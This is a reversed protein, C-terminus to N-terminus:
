QWGATSWAATSWSAGSWSAGSWSAGSWSAGSWSGGSWSGGSWSAGSWSAGTWSDGSWSAGNWAAGSWSATGWAGTSWSGNTWGNGTWTSGNWNGGDWTIGALSQPAWTVGNWTVGFIDREGNLETGNMTVHTGGRAKELSGTGVGYSYAQASTLPTAALQAANVDILGAGTFNKNTTAISAATRALLAKVQDPTLSPRHQLLLAVAGSVVAASQSTGSGRFFRTGVRGTPYQQDLYSGPDRLAIVHSGPAVFDAHRMTNGRSSFAPVVDDAPTLTGSPDAAGVAIIHPDIAPNAVSANTTGDNGVSAVVVIGSRWAVEAAYALPDLAYAQTSATGFALNIVRINLGGSTRHQVVWDLAAIVQSVDVAGNSAAVKVNVLRADPAVGDFRKQDGVPTSASDRGAIIGALHTGHGYADYYALAPQQSDFSLDPGNVVKGPTALGEVPVVGSDILAVDVGAGTIGRSWVKHANVVRAVDYMSGFDGTPDYGLTPDTAALQVAVDLTIGEVGRTQRISGVTDAPVHAAFGHVIGLPRDIRGGHRRIAAAALPEAGPRATVIVAVQRAPTTAAPKAAASTAVPGALVALAVAGWRLSRGRQARGTRVTWTIGM